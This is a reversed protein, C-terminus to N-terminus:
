RNFRIGSISICIEVEKIEPFIGSKCLGFEQGKVKLCNISAYTLKTGMAEIPGDLLKFISGRSVGRM